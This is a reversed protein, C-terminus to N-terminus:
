LKAWGAGPGRLRVFSTCSSFDQSFRARRWISERKWQHRRCFPEWLGWRIFGTDEGCKQYQLFLSHLQVMLLQKLCVHRSAITLVWVDLMVSLLLLFGPLSPSLPYILVVVWTFSVLLGLCFGLCMGRYWWMCAWARLGHIAYRNTMM